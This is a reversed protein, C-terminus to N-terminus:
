TIAMEGVINSYQLRVTAMLISGNLYASSSNHFLYNWELDNASNLCSVQSEHVTSSNTNIV